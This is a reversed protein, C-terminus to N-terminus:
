WRTEINNRISGNPPRLGESSNAAMNSNHGLPCSVLMKKISVEEQLPQGGLQADHQALVVVLVWPVHRLLRVREPGQVLHV